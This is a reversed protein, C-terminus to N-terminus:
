GSINISSYFSIIEYGISSEKYTFIMNKVYENSLDPRHYSIIESPIFVHNAGHIEIAVIMKLNQGSLQQLLIHLPM